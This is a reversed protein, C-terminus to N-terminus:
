PYEIPWLIQAPGSPSPVIAKPVLARHILEEAIM